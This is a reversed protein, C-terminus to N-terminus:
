SSIKASLNQWSSCSRRAPASPPDLLDQHYLGVSRDSQQGETRGRHRLACGTEARVQGRAVPPGAIDLMLDYRQGNRTFDAKTYDIVHDAGLSRVLEVNRPSCM